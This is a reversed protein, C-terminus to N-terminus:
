RKQYFFTSIERGVARGKREFKTIIRDEKLSFIDSVDKYATSANFVSQIHEAYEAWDTMIQLVGKSKLKEALLQIFNEQILRRKHHRKKRWPDPFLIYVTDLSEAAIMKQLVEVADHCILRVNHMQSEHLERCCNGIGPEHVDIGIFNENPRQKAQHMLHEGMGIGIELVLPQASDFAKSCGFAQSTEYSVLYQQGLSVIAQRQGQSMRGLRRVYSRVTRLPRSNLTDITM